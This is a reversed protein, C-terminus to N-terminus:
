EMGHFTLCMIALKWVLRLKTDVAVWVSGQQFKGWRGNRGRCGQSDNEEGGEDRRRKEEGVEEEWVDFEEVDCRM